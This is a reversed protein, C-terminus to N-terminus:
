IQEHSAPTLLCISISHGLNHPRAMTTLQSCISTLYLAVVMIAFGTYYRSHSHM